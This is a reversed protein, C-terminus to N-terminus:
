KSSGQKILKRIYNSDSINVKLTYTGSSYAACPIKIFNLGTVGDYTINEAILKGLYDYVTITITQDETLVIPLSVDGDAPNPFPEAVLQKNSNLAACNENNTLNDDVSTNVTQITICSIANERENISLFSKASFKFLLVAGPPLTDAAWTEKMIGGGTLEYLIEFETIPTSGYNFLDAEVGVFGDNDITSRAAIIGLDTMRRAITFSQSSNNKCGFNDTLLLGLTYTDENAFSLTLIPDSFTNGNSLSWFYNSASAQNPIFNLPSDIFLYTSPNIDFSADPLPNVFVSKTITDVCGLDNTVRLFINKSGVTTLIYKPNQVNSFTTSADKWQWSNINGEIQLSVDTLQFSDGVCIISCNFDANPPLHVQITDTTISVCGNLGTVKLTVPHAGATSYTKTATLGTATGPFFSWNRTNSANPSPAISNDTFTIPINVCASSYNFNASVEDKVGISKTISESCGKNNTAILQVQYNSNQSFIHFPDSSTSINNAGSIADGFNWQYNTIPYGLINIVDNFFTSDNQCAIANTFDVIPKPYVHITKSLNQQCGVDTTVTLNITYFGTDAYTYNPQSVVATDNTASADGFNWFWNTITNGSTAISTDNFAISNNLCAIGNQFGAIPAQGVIIVNITDKAICNNSNTATIWYQGTTNVILSNNTSNDNWQYTIGPQTANYLFITNGSCISTDAGLTVISAFNDHTISIVNSDFFCGSTDTIHVSYLGQQSILLLSDTSSDSWQFSFVNKPLSTNWLITDGPCIMSDTFSVQPYNIYISDSSNFGFIDTVTVKYLGSTNVTISENIDAPLIVGNRSWQFDAFRLGAHLQKACFGNITESAIGLDVPPAYKNRLYNEVIAREADPLARNYIIIEAIDGKMAYSPDNTYAGIENPNFNGGMLNTTQYSSNGYSNASTGNYIFRGLLYKNNTPMNLTINDNNSINMKFYNPGIFFNHVWNGIQGMIVSGFVNDTSKSIFFISASDLNLGTNLDFYKSGDFRLVPKYNLQIISDVKIPQFALAGQSGNNNNGSLDNWTQVTNGNLVLGTDAAVWFHLGPISSISNATQCFLNNGFFLFLIFIFNRM